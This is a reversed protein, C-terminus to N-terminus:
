TLIKYWRPIRAIEAFGFRRYLGIAADNNESVALSVTPLDRKKCGHLSHTLLATGVGRDQYEPLIFLQGLWAGGSKLPRCAIFGIPYGGVLAVFSMDPPHDTPRETKPFLIWRECDEATYQLLKIAEDPAAAMIQACLDLYDDTFSEIKVESTSFDPLAPLTLLRPHARLILYYFLSFGRQRLAYSYNDVGLPDAWSSLPGSFVLRTEAPFAEITRGILEDEIDRNAYEPLV